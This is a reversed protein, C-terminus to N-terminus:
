VKKINKHLTTKPAPIIMVMLLFRMEVALIARYNGILRQKKEWGGEERVM